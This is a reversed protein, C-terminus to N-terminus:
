GARDPATPQKLTIETKSGDTLEICRLRDSRLARKLMARVRIVFPVTHDEGNCELRLVVSEREPKM